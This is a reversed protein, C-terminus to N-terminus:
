AGSTTQSQKAEIRALVSKMTGIEEVLEVMQRHRMEDLKEHLAM